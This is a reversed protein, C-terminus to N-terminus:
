KWKDLINCEELETIMRIYTDGFKESIWDSIHKQKKSNLAADHIQTFDDSLNAIHADTKKILKVIRYAKNGESTLFQSISSIDGTNMKEINYKIDSPLHEIVFSSSGTYPNVLIGANNKSLDDSYNLAADNFTLDGSKILSEIKQLESKADLLASSSVKPKLLIHRVNIMDDKRSILQIIHYGFKTEIIESIEDGKLSFAAIEFEPVLDGRKVFGLEGGNKASETDDSYLTALVKFDEGDNIRDRFSILKKRIESKEEISIKPFKVIQSIEVTMPMNPLLSDELLDTYFLKVEAPTINLSSTLESQKSQSLLQDYIIEYFELRIDDITKNYYNELSEKSGLQSIISNLRRELENNVEEETIILSDLKAHHILLKQYLIEELVQCRINESETIGQSLYQLYQTEIDSELVIEDGVVAVIRDIIQQSYINTHILFLIIIITRM